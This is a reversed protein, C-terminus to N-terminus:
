ELEDDDLFEKEEEESFLGRIASLDKLDLTPLDKNLKRDNVFKMLQRSAYNLRRDEPFKELGTRLADIIVNLEEKEPRIGRTEWYKVSEKVLSHVSYARVQYEEKEDILQLMMDRGTSYAEAADSKGLRDDDYSQKLYNRATANKVNYSGPAFNAAQQLHNLALDYKGMTQEVIGLQIFYCFDHRYCGLLKGFLEKIKQNRIGLKQLFGVNMIRSQIQNWYSDRDGIFPAIIHLCDRVARMKEVESASNIITDTLIDTRLSIGNRGTAKIFNGIINYVKRDSGNCLFSLLTEPVYPLEKRSFIALLLMTEKVLPLLIHGKNNPNNLSQYLNRYEKRFRDRMSVGKFAQWLADSLDLTRVFHKIQTERDFGNLTGLLGKEELTSVASKARYLVEENTTNGVLYTVYGPFQSLDYLRKEHYYPRATLVIVLRRDAPYNEVLYAIADYYGSADDVLLVVVEDRLTATVDIFNRADFRNGVFEYVPYGKASLEAGIRKLVVSKGGIAKSVLTAIVNDKTSSLKEEIASLVMKEGLTRFDFGYIIDQWSPQAGLYLRTDYSNQKGTNKLIDSVNRFNRKFHTNGIIRPSVVPIGVATKIWGAFDRASMQILNAHRSEISNRTLLNPAPDVYFFNGRPEDPRQGAISLYFDIDVEDGTAGIFVINQTRMDDILKAYRCDLNGAMRAVYETDSFVFGESHNRVCGHLKVYEIGKPNVHSQSYRSNMVNLRGKPVAEELLDDINLTYIRHWPFGAITKQFDEPECETFIKRLFESAGHGLKNQCFQYVKSLSYSLLDKGEESDKDICLLDTVLMEKLANGLPLAVGRVNKAEFSFGAGTFLVPKEEKAMLRALVDLSQKTQADM